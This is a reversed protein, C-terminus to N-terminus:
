TFLFTCMYSMLRSKQQEANAVMAQVAYVIATMAQIFYMSHEFGHVTGLQVTQLWCVMAPHNRM